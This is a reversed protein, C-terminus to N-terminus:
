KNSGLFFSDSLMGGNHALKVVARKAESESEGINVDDDQKAGTMILFLRNRCRM